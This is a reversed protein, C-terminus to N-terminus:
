PILDRIRRSLLRAAVIAMRRIDVSADCYTDLFNRCVALERELDAIRQLDKQTREQALLLGTQAAKLESSLQIVHQSLKV